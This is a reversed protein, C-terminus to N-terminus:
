RLPEIHISIFTEEGYVMRLGKEISITIDHAQVVNMNSDVEIHLDIAINQGIKRTKLDHPNHVGKVSGAINLIESEEIKPLSTEILEMLSERTIRFAVRFIFFSVVMAALPDLIVWNEGLFIAGGIGFVTGFSSFSDSRHHWANALVVQSNICKGVKITYRYLIEKIVISVLAAILAIMGPKGLPTNGYHGVINKLGSGFIGIGVLFLVIGVFAAALTEVKGHGYKHNGDRPKSAVKLSGVVVLDTAFDSVSHVADAIMAASRGFIGAFLKFVMLMLNAFFGIWTVRSAQYQRSDKM